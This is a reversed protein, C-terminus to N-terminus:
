ATYGFDELPIVIQTRCHYKDGTCYHSVRGVLGEGPLNEDFPRATDNLHWLFELTIGSELRGDGIMTLDLLPLAFELMNTMTVEHSVGTFEVPADEYDCDGKVIGKEMDWGIYQRVVRDHIVQEVNMVDMHTIQNEAQINNYEYYVREEDEAGNDRLDDFTKFYFKNRSFFALAGQEKAMQRIMLSPRMGPLLHYDEVVPFDDIHDEIRGDQLGPVLEYLIQRATKNVFLRAEPAPAKLKCVDEQFCNFSLQIGDKPMTLIVFKLKVDIRDRFAPDQFTIELIDGIKIEYGGGPIDLSDTLISDPDHFLIHLRPGSLDITETFTAERFFSRDIEETNNVGIWVIKQILNGIQNSEM